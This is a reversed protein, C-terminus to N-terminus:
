DAQATRFQVPLYFKKLVPYFARNNPSIDGGLNYLSHRVQLILQSFYEPDPESYILDQVWGSSPHADDGTAAAFQKEFANAAAEVAHFEAPTYATQARVAYALQLLQRANLSSLRAHDFNWLIYDLTRATYHASDGNLLNLTRFDRIQRLLQKNGGNRIANLAAYADAGTESWYAFYNAGDRTIQTGIEVQSQRMLDYCHFLEHQFVSDHVAAEDLAPAQNALVERLLRPSTMASIARPASSRGDAVVCANGATATESFYVPYAFGAKFNKLKYVVTDLTDQYVENSANNSKLFQRLGQLRAPSPEGSYMLFLPTYNEETSGPTSSATPASYASNSIFSAIFILSSLYLRM